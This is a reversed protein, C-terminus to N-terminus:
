LTAYSLPVPLVLTFPINDVLPLIVSLLNFSLIIPIFVLAFKLGKLNFPANSLAPILPYWIFLNDTVKVANFISLFM